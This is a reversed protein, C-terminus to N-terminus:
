VAEGSTECAKMARKVAVMFNEWKVYGLLKSLDPSRTNSHGEEDIQKIADLPSVHSTNAPLQDMNQEGAEISNDVARM